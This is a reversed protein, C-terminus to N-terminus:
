PVHQLPASVSDADIVLWRPLFYGGEERLQRMRETSQMGHQLEFLAGNLVKPM